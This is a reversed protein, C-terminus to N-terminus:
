PGGGSPPPTYDVIPRDAQDQEPQGEAPGKRPKPAFLLAVAVLLIVGLGIIAVLVM